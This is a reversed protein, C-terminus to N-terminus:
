FMGNLLFKKVKESYTPLPAPFNINAVIKDYNSSSKCQEENQPADENASLNITDLSSVVVVKINM